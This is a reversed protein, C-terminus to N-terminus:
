HSITITSDGQVTSAVVYLPAEDPIDVFLCRESEEGPLIVFLKRDCSLRLTYQTDEVGGSRVDSLEKTSGMHAASYKGARTFRLAWSEDDEGYLFVYRKNHLVANETAIGVCAHSGASSFVVRWTSEPPLPGASRVGVTEPCNGKRFVTSSEDLFSRGGMLGWKFAEERIRAVGLILVVRADGGAEFGLEAATEGSDPLEVDGLLLIQTEAPPGGAAEVRQKLHQGADSPWLPVTAVYSGDTTFVGVSTPADSM